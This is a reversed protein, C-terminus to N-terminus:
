GRISVIVWRSDAASYVLEAIGLGVTVPDVAETALIRNAATGTAAAQTLTMNQAVANHLIIRKGDFPNAISTINFAATPGTIRVYSRAGIAIDNNAGNALTIGAQRTAFDGDVDLDTSPVTSAAGGVFIRGAFSSDATGTSLVCWKGTGSAIASRIAAALTGITQDAADVGIANTQTGTGTKNPFDVGKRNTVTVSAGINPLSQVVVDNAITLTGANIVSYTPVSRVAFISVGAVAAGDARVSPANELLFHSGGITIASGNPNTILPDYTVAGLGGALLAAGLTWTSGDGIKIAKFNGSIDDLTIAAPFTMAKVTASGTTTLQPQVRVPGFTAHATGWLDLTESAATGGKAVQSGARGALLLYQTHDDDGLGGLGGHDVGAPLVTATITPNGSVGDANTLTFDVSATDTVAISRQVWTDAASRVAIGTSGLGELAALDNALAFTPNGVVGSANAITIGAAPAVLTRPTWGDAGDSVAIGAGLSSLATLGADIPQFATSDLGDLTDADIGIAELGALIDTLTTKRQDAPATGVSVDVFAFLDGPSVTAELTLENIDLDLAGSGVIPDPTGTIAIGGAVSTVTGGGTGPVDVWAGAQRFRHVADTASYHIMGDVPAVLAAEEANTLRSPLFDQTASQVELAVSASTAFNPAGFVGPGRHMLTRLVGQSLLSAHIGGPAVNVQDDNVVFAADAPVSGVSSTFRGRPLYRYGFAMDTLTVGSDADFGTDIGLYQGSLAGGGATSLIPIADVSQWNVFTCAAGDALYTPFTQLLSGAGLNMAVGAPNRILPSHTLVNIGLSITDDVVTWTSFPSGIALGFILPASTSGDVAFSQNGFILAGGVGKLTTKHENVLLIDLNWDPGSSTHLSLGGPVATSATGTIIGLGDLSLLPNNTAGTRGALLLYQPHDDDLLGTLAGHDTVGGGGSDDGVLDLDGTVPNIRLKAM